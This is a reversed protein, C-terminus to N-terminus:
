FSTKTGISFHPFILAFFHVQLLLKLSFLEESPYMVEFSLVLSSDIVEFSLSFSYEVQDPFLSLVMWAVSIEECM